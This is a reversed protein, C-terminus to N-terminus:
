AKSQADFANVQAGLTTSVFPCGKGPRNLNQLAVSAANIRGKKHAVSDGLPFSVKVSPNNVAQGALVDKTLAAIFAERSPPCSCPVSIPKGAANNVPGECDGFGTPPLPAKVGLDPAIHAIDAATVKGNTAPTAPVSPTVAPSAAKKTSAPSAPKTAPAAPPAAPAKSGDVATKGSAALAELDKRQKGLTTAAFSYVKGPGDFNQLSVTAANIPANADAISIGVSFSIGVSPSNVAHGAQIDRTLDLIYATRSPPRSCPVL